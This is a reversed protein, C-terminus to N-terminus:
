LERPQSAAANYNTRKTKQKLHSKALELTKLREEQIHSFPLFLSYFLVLFLKSVQKPRARGLEEARM